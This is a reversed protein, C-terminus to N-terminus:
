IDLRDFLGRLLRSVLESSSSISEEEAVRGLRPNRPSSSETDPLFGTRGLTTMVESLRALEAGVLM